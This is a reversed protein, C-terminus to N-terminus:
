PLTKTKTMSGPSTGTRPAQVRAKTKMFSSHPTHTGLVAELSSRAAPAGHPQPPWSLKRGSGPQSGLLYGSEAAAQARHHCDARGQEPFPTFSPRCTVPMATGWTRNMSLSISNRPVECM